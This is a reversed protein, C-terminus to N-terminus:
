AAPVIGDSYSPYTTRLLNKVRLVLDTRDIPKSLFDDAGSTRGRARADREAMATFIIIPVNSTSPTGKMRRAVEYGDIGPMMVDLLVLDPSHEGAMALAEEGCSAIMVAFGEWSLVIELVETNDREDDVVLICVPHGNVHPTVSSM